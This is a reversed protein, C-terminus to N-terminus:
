FPSLARCSIIVLIACVGGEWMTKILKSQMAVSREVDFMTGEESVLQLMDDEADDLGQVEENPSSAAVPQKTVDDDINDYGSM